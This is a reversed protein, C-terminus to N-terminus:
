TALEQISQSCPPSEFLHSTDRQQKAYDQCESTDRDERTEETNPQEQPAYTQDIDERTPDREQEQDGNEREQDNFEPEPYFVWRGLCASRRM